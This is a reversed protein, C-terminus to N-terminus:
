IFDYPHSGSLNIYCSVGSSSMREKGVRHLVCSFAALFYLEKILFRSWPDKIQSKETKLVMLFYMQRPWGNMLTQHHCSSSTLATRKVSFPSTELRRRPASRPCPLPCASNQRWPLVAVDGGREATKLASCCCLSGSPAQRDQLEFCNRAAILM